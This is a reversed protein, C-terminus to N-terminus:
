LNWVQCIPHVDVFKNWLNELTPLYDQLVRWLFNKVKPPISLNLLKLWNFSIGGSPYQNFSKSLVRYGSKVTYQGKGDELLIWKDEQNSFSLPIRLIRKVDEQNFIDRLLDYDWENIDTKFMSKVKIGELGHTTPTLIKTFGIEPIWPDDWIDISEGNDVKM